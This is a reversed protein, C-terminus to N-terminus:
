RTGLPKVGPQKIQAGEASWFFFMKKFAKADVDLM